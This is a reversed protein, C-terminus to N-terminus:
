HCTVTTATVEDSFVYRGVRHERHFRGTVEVPSADPCPRRGFSFVRVARTGDSLDFTYYHNGRASVREQLRTITGALTVQQGDYRDPNAVIASPSTRNAQAAAVGCFVALVVGICALLKERIKLAQSVNM